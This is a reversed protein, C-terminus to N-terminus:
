TRFYTPRGEDLRQPWEATRCAIRLSLRDCDCRKLEDLLATAVSGAELLAEDLSDFFLHLHGSGSQWAGFVPEDFVRRYLGMDSGIGALNLSLVLDGNSIAAAEAANV